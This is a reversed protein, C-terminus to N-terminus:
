SEPLVTRADKAIEALPRAADLRHWTISGLDYDLQREVVAADADSADGSRAGVREKLVEAPADLWFGRFPVGAAEAVGAIREREAEAAFMADAVVSHGAALVREARDAIDGYVAATVAREYAEPPLKEEPHKGFRRKRLVDSRLVAAGPALGIGPALRAAVSSKGSGSLGGVAVLSPSAPELYGLALDLYARAEARLDADAEEVAEIGNIMARVGARLSLFLPLLPLAALDDTMTLYRNFVLNALPRLGRHDLDMLLFALDYFVDICAIGESFEIADFLTPRGDILCINRLHLDGHCYRVFGKRRRQELLNATGALRDQWLGGLREVDAAEFADAAPGRLTELNSEVVFGIGSHGGQDPRREAAAHFSAIADALERMLAADLAGREALRSFLTDQDFRRMVVLWDVAPGNGDIALGGDEDTVPATGLYLDPATRRNLAVEAECAARRQEVASFDLFSFRVARKLKYVREGALFVHAVHTDIREVTEVGEGHSAPDELFAVIRSQDSATSM